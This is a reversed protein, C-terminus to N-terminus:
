SLRIASSVDLGFTTIVIGVVASVRTAPNVLLLMQALSYHDPGSPTGSVLNECLFIRAGVFCRSFALAPLEDSLVSGESPLPPPNSDWGARTLNLM